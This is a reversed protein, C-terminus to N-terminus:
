TPSSLSYLFAIGGRTLWISAELVLQFVPDRDIIIMVSFGLGPAEYSSM